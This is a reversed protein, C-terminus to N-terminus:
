VRPGTDPMPLLLPRSSVIKRGTASHWYQPIKLPSSILDVKTYAESPMRHLAVLADPPRNNMDCGAYTQNIVIM